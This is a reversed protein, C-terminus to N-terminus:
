EDGVLNKGRKEIRAGRNRMRGIEVEVITDKDLDSGEDYQVWNEM